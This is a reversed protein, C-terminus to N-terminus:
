ARDRVLFVVREQFWGLSQMRQEGYEVRKDEVTVMPFDFVCETDSLDIGHNKINQKLKTEEWTIM